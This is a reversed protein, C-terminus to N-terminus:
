LAARPKGDADVLALGAAGDTLVSARFRPKAEADHLAFQVAGEDSMGWSGRLRGEQDVLVFSEARVVSSPPPLVHTTFALTVAAVVGLVTGLGILSLTGGVFGGFIAGGPAYLLAGPIPAVVVEVIVVLTYVVPALSGWAAVSDRLRELWRQEGSAGSVLVHVFGSSLYSYLAGAFLIATLAIALRRLPM